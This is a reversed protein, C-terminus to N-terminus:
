QIFVCNLVVKKRGEGGTEAEIGVCNLVVKKRGKGGTEAEENGLMQYDFCQM